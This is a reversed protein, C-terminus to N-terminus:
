GLLSELLIIVNIVLFHYQIHRQLLVVANINAKEVFIIVNIGIFELKLPMMHEIVQTFFFFIMANMQIMILVLM